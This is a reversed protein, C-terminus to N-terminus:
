QSGFTHGISVGLRFVNDSHFQFNNPIFYYHVEPRVFFRNWFYYRVGVGGHILFHNSNLYTRCGGSFGCNTGQYFILTEGGVGAMFDGRTKAALRHAYLANVDYLIPRFFQYGNYLGEKTRFAGEINLGLRHETLYQLSAQAYIGGKEAPPLYAQSASLPKPSWLISAGAAFDIQQAPASSVFAPILLTLLLVSSWCLHIQARPPVKGCPCGLRSDGCQM